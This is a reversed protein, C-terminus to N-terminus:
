FKTKFISYFLFSYFTVKVAVHLPFLGDNNPINLKLNSGLLVSVMELNLSSVALHIATNGDKSLTDPNVNYKLLM